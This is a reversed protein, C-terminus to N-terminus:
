GNFLSANSQETQDYNASAQSMLQSIGNLADNLGRANRQWQAWLEQFRAQAVGAWDSGLPAVNSALQALIGDVNSAGARLQGSVQQLQEPTVRILGSPM